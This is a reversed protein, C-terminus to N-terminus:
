SCGRTLRRAVFALGPFLLVALGPEPVFNSFQLTDFGIGVSPASTLVVERVGTTGSFSVFEPFASTAPSLVETALLGSTGFFEVTQGADPDSVWLSVDQPLPGTFTIRIGCRECQILGGGSDFKAGIIKNPVSSTSSSPVAVVAFVFPAVSEGPQLSDAPDSSAGPGIPATSELIVGSAAFEASLATGHAFEDFELTIARSDGSLLAIALATLAAAARM